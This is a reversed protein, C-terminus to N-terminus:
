YVQTVNAILEVFFKDCRGFYVLQDLLIEGFIARGTVQAAGETVIRELPQDPRRNAAFMLHVPRHPFLGHFGGLYAVM